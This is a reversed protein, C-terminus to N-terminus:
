QPGPLRELLDLMPGCLQHLGAYALEMESQGGDARVVTLDTASEVLHELLATKGIGAEGQLVLSRSEGRRVASLLENLRACEDSRGRLRARRGPGLVPNEMSEGGISSTT